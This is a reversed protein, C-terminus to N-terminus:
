FTPKNGRAREIQQQRARDAAAKKANATITAARAAYPLNVLEVHYARLVTSANFNATVAFFGKYCVPLEGGVPSDGNHMYVIFNGGSCGMLAPDAHSLLRGNRDFIWYLTIDPHQKRMTEQGYKARLASILAAMTMGPGGPETWNRQIMWVTPPDNPPQTVYVSTIDASKPNSVTLSFNLPLANTDVYVDSSHKQLQVKATQMPMGPYIGLLDPTEPTAVAPPEQQACLPVSFAALGFSVVAASYSRKLLRM